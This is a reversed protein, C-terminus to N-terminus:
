QCPPGTAASVRCVARSIKDAQRGRGGSHRASLSRSYSPQCGQLVTSLRAPCAAGLSILPLEDTGSPPDQRPQRGGAHVRGVLVLPTTRWAGLAQASAGSLAALCTQPVDLAPGVGAPSTLVAAGEADSGSVTLTRPPRESVTAAARSSHVGGHCRLAFEAFSLATPRM